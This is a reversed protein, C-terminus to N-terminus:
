AKWRHSGPFSVVPRHLALRHPQQRERPRRCGSTCQIAHSLRVVLLGEGATVFSPPPPSSLSRIAKCGCGLPTVLGIPDFSPAMGGGAFVLLTWHDVVQEISTRLRLFRGAEIRFSPLSLLGSLASGWWWLGERPYRESVTVDEAPGVRAPHCLM